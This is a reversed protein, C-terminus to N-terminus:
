EFLITKMGEVKVYEKQALLLMFSELFIWACIWTSIFCGLYSFSPTSRRHITRLQLTSLGKANFTKIIKKEEIRLYFASSLWARSRKRMSQSSCIRHSVFFCRRRFNCVFSFWWLHMVLSLLDEPLFHRSISHIIMTWFLKM